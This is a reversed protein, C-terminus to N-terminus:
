DEGKRAVFLQNVFTFGFVRLARLIGDVRRSFGPSVPIGLYPAFGVPANMFRRYETSVFGASRAYGDFVSRDFAQEHHEDPHLGFFGSIEDWVGSPCTAIFLGGPKLARHAQEFVQAPSDLHELVALALVLDRSAPAVEPHPVTVDGQVVRIGRDLDRAQAILEPSYEIGISDRAGLMAHVRQLTAGDAAGFDLIAVDDTASAGRFARYAEVAELARSALRFAVQPQRKRQDSYEAGMVGHPVAPTLGDSPSLDNSHAM